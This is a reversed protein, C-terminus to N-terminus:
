VYAVGAVASLLMADVPEEELRKEFEEFFQMGLKSSRVAKRQAAEVPNDSHLSAPYMGLPDLGSYDIRLSGLQADEPSIDLRQGKARQDQRSAAAFQEPTLQLTLSLPFRTIGYSAVSKVHHRIPGREPPQPLDWAVVDAEFAIVPWMISPHHLVLDLSRTRTVANLTSKEVTVRFDGWPSKYSDHVPPLPVKYTTLFQSVPYIIDWDVSLDDAVTPEPVSGPMTLGDTAKTVLDFFPNGDVSAVHLHFEPPVTTTNEMHLVLIRKPHEADYPGWSPRTFWSLSGATLFTLLLVLRATFSAGFRHCFPLLMPIVLFGVGATLSAIIFDVPAESGLRGTLPVFLDLFGVIGEVGLLLPLTEGVVYTALHVGKEGRKLVYDNLVLAVLTAVCGIACLYTSGIGLTHGIMMIATYYILLGVLVAHELLASEAADQAVTAVPSRVRNSVFFYQWLIVGLLAPPGYVVIPLAEHRFWSMAKGMITSTVFAGLNAGVLASVVSGVVGVTGLLYVKKNREWDVRDSVVVAALAALIGYFLTAQARTYVAFINGGMASFFVLASTPTRPLNPTPHPSNGMSTEPSTLYELLALASEGMHQVAGPQIADVNDLRTHYKYSDQVLAMDLGTLNGYEAFQRFDTDSLILGTAFIESAIITAYPTPTRALARIMEESTAQFTIEKGETGCAELNIVARITDKLPHQTIFLHSADQLSEEAGNFLFVAANTLRRPSLAMVRLAEMMAAIGVLDDAAGPSPLTSDSHANVLIANAKSAQTGDSLRVVVNSIGFYKKWVMKDMFDFLHTGDGTQHWVEIQMDGDPHADVMEAKIEEVKALLYEDTQVMEKTGVIRYRPTGDQYTALDRVYSMAHVESFIPTGKSSFLRPQPTPLKYHLHVSTWGVLGLLPLLVVLSPFLRWQRPTRPHVQASPAPLPKLPAPTPQPPDPM